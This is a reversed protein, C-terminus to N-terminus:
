FEGEDDLDVWADPDFEVWDASQLAPEPQLDVRAPTQLEFLAPPYSATM